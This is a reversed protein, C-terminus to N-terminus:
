LVPWGLSQNSKQFFVVKKKEGSFFFFFKPLEGRRSAADEFRSRKRRMEGGGQTHSRMRRVELGGGHAYLGQHRRGGGWM